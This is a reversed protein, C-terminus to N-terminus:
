RLRLMCNIEVHTPPRGWPLGPSVNAPRSDATLQSTADPAFEWGLWGVVAGRVTFAFSLTADVVSRFNSSSNEM